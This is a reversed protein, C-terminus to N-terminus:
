MFVPTKCVPCGVHRGQKQLWDRICTDHYFHFCPLTMTKDGAAFEELCITCVPGSAEGSDVSALGGKGSLGKAGHVATSGVRGGTGPGTQPLTSSPVTTSDLQASPQRWAKSGHPWTSTPLSNLDDDTVPQVQPNASTAAVVRSRLYSLQTALQALMARENVARVDCLVVFQAQESDLHQVTSRKAAQHVHFTPRQSVLTQMDRGYAM